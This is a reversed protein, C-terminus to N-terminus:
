ANRNNSNARSALVADWDLGEARGDLWDWLDGVRWGLRRESLQIAAPIVRRDKMRRFTPVSLGIFAAADKTTLM